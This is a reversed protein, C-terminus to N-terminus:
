RSQSFCYMLDVVSKGYNGGTTGVDISAPDATIPHKYGKNYIAAAAQNLQEPTFAPYKRALSRKAAEIMGAAYDAAFPVYHAQGATVNPRHTLQFVGMGGGGGGGIEAINRGGSERLAMAAIMSPDVDHAIAGSRLKPTLAEVRAVDDPNKRAEQLGLRCRPDLAGFMGM